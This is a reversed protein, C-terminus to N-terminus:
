HCQGASVAGPPHTDQGIVKVGPLQVLHKHAGGLSVSGLFICHTLTHWAWHGQGWSVAGPSHTKCWFVAGPSDTGQGGGNKWDGFVARPSLRSTGLHEQGKIKVEPFQVLSHTCQGMVRVETFQVLSHTGQGMVRVKFFFVAGPSHTCQGMVRVESFQVLHTHTRGWSGSKLFSCLTHAM